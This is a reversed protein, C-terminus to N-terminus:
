RCSFLLPPDTEYLCHANLDKEIKPRGRPKKGEIEAKMTEKQENGEDTRHVHGTIINQELWCNLTNFCTQCNREIYSDL